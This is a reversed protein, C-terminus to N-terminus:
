EEKLPDYISIIYDGSNRDPLYKQAALMVSDVTVADIDNIAQNLSHGYDERAEIIDVYDEPKKILTNGRMKEKNNKLEKESIRESRLTDMEEFIYDLTKDVNKVNVSADVGLLGQM